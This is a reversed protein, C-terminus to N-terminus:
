RKAREIRASMFTIQMSGGGGALPVNTGGILQVLDGPKLESVLAAAEKPLAVYNTENERAAGPPVVRLIVKGATDIPLITDGAGAAVFQAKVVVGCGVFDKAFAPNMVKSFPVETGSVPCTSSTPTTYSTEGSGGCAPGLLLAFVM